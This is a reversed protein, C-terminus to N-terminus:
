MTKCDGEVVLNRTKIWAMRELQVDSDSVVLCSRFESGCFANTGLMADHSQFHRLLLIEQLRFGGFENLLNLSKSLKGNWTDIECNLSTKSQWIVFSWQGWLFISLFETCDRLGVLVGMACLCLRCLGTSCKQRLGSSCCFLLAAKHQKEVM